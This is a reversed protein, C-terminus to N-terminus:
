ILSVPVSYEIAYRVLESIQLDQHVVIGSSTTAMKRAVLFRKNTSCEVLLDGPDALPYDLMTLGVVNSDSSGAIGFTSTINAPDIKGWIKVPDCYGGSITTGYCEGCRSIMADQTSPNYCTSCRPGFLRRKLMLFQSGNLRKLTVSLDHRARRLLRDRHPQSQSLLDYNLVRTESIVKESPNVLSTVRIAYYVPYSLGARVGPDFDRFFFSGPSLQSVTEFPGEPSTSRLVEIGGAQNNPDEITWQIHAFEPFVNIVSTVIPKM